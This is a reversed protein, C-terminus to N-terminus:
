GDCRLAVAPDTTAARLAPWLGAALAIVLLVAASALYSMPDSAGVQFLWHKLSQGLAWAGFAGVPLALLVLRASHWLTLTGIQEASAGIALRVGTERTQAAAVLTATAYVGLGAVVIGLASFCGLLALVVPLIGMSEQLPQIVPPDADPPLPPLGQRMDAVFQRMPTGPRLKVLFSLSRGGIPHSAVFPKYLKPLVNLSDRTEHIDAVVGIVKRPIGDTGDTITQGLPDQNPWVKRATTASVIAVGPTEPVNSWYRYGFYTYKWADPPPIDEPQFFRGALLRIGLIDLADTSVESLVAESLVDSSGYGAHGTHPRLLAGRFASHTFPPPNMFAVSLVEPMESMRRTAERYYLANRAAQAEAGPALAQQEEERESKFRVGKPHQRSYAAGADRFAPLDPLDIKVVAVDRPQFGLPFHLRAVASRLLLGASILLVMALLLQGGALLEHASLMRRRLATASWGSNGAKLSSNLDAGTAQLAPALGCLITVGLTLLALLAITARSFTASGAMVQPLLQRLGYRALASFALGLLGGAAALLLTETLLQRILRGREAGLVARVVMESRRRVGRALLLNAVGACALVLFLVSVVSLIWLLPRRDGLLYDHLSELTPTSRASAPTEQNTLTALGAQARSMSIGPRLRGVSVSDTFSVQGAYWVQVGSPFDFEPPMVGIVANRGGGLSIFCKSLDRESQLRTRWLQDSVIVGPRDSPDIDYPAYSVKPDAQFGRGLRPQVGLTALFEATVAAVGIQATPGNGSVTIQDVSYAMVGSFIPDLAPRNKFYTHNAYLDLMSAGGNIRVLRGSHPFPLPRLVLSYLPGFLAAVGGMGLALLVIMALASGKARRLERGAWRLDQGLRDLWMWGWAERAQERLRLENGFHRGGEQGTMERHFQMDNELEAYRRRRNALYCIRRWFEGM